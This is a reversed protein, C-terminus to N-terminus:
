LDYKDRAHNKKQATSSLQIKFGEKIFEPVESQKLLELPEQSTNGYVFIDEDSRLYMKLILGTGGNDEYHRFTRYRTQNPRKHSSGPVQLCKLKHSRWSASNHGWKQPWLSLLQKLAVIMCNKPSSGLCQRQKIPELIALTKVNTNKFSDIYLKFSSKIEAIYNLRYKLIM